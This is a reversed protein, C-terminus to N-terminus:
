QWGGGGCVLRGKGSSQNAVEGFVQCGPNLLGGGGEWESVWKSLEVRM